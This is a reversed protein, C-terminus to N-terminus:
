DENEHEHIEFIMRIGKINVGKKEMLYRAYEIKRIDNMCFYMKKKGELTPEVIGEKVISRITWIPLRVLKSVIDVTFVPDDDEISPPCFEDPAEEFFEELFRELESKKKKM